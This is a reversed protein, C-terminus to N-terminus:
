NKGASMEPVYVSASAHRTIWNEVYPQFSLMRTGADWSFDSCPACYAEDLQAIFAPIEESPLKTLRLELQLRVLRLYTDLDHLRGVYEDWLHHYRSQNKGLPNYIWDMRPNSREALSALTEDRQEIYDRWPLEALKLRAKFFPVGYNFTANPHFFLNSANQELWWQWASCEEWEGWKGWGWCIRFTQETAEQYSVWKKLAPLANYMFRIEGEIAPRMSVQEPSLPTLLGRWESAHKEIDASSSSLLFSIQYVEKMMQAAAIASDLLCSKGELNRRLFTSGQNFFMLGEGANGAEIELVAQAVLTGRIESLLGYSPIFFPNCNPPAAYYPLEQLLRYRQILAGNATLTKELLEKQSYICGLFATGRKYWCDFSPEARQWRLEEKGEQEKLWRLPAGMGTPDEKEIGEIRKRGAEFIDSEEPAYFGVMAVFINENDPVESPKTELLARAEDSLEEDRWNILVLLAFLAVVILVTWKM